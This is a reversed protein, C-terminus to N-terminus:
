TDWPATTQRFLFRSFGASAKFFAAAPKKAGPFSTYHFFCLRAMGPVSPSRFGHLDCNEAQALDSMLDRYSNDRFLGLSDFRNVLRATMLSAIFSIFESGIVSTDYQVKTDDFGDEDKYYRFFEKVLWREDSLKYIEGPERDVDSEFAITGFEAQKEEPEQRSFAKGKNHRFWDAEEKAARGRDYFSYLYYSTMGDRGSVAVKRALVDRDKTDLPMSDYDHLSNNTITKLPVTPPASM